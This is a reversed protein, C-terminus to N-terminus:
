ANTATTLWRMPWRMAWCWPWDPKMRRIPCSEGIFVDDYQQLSMSLLETEPVLHLGRRHTIPVEACGQFQLLLLVAAVLIGPPRRDPIQHNGEKMIKLEGPSGFKNFDLNSSSTFLRFKSNQENYCM